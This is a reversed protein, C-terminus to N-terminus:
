TGPTRFSDTLAVIKRINMVMLSNGRSIQTLLASVLIFDGDGHRHSLWKLV